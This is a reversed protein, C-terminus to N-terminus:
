YSVGLRIALEPKGTIFKWSSREVMEEEEGRPEGLQAPTSLKSIKFRM